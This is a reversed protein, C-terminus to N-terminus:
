VASMEMTNVTSPSPRSAVILVALSSPSVHRLCAIVFNSALAPSEEGGAGARHDERQRMVFDCEARRQERHAHPGGLIVRTDREFMIARQGKRVEHQAIRRM